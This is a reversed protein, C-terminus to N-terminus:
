IQTYNIMVFIAAILHLSSNIDLEQQQSQSPYSSMIGLCLSYLPTVKIYKWGIYIYVSEAFKYLIQNLNYM